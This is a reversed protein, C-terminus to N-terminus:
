CSCPLVEYLSAGHLHSHRFGRDEALQRYLHLILKQVGTLGGDVVLGHADSIKDITPLPGGYRDFWVVEIM